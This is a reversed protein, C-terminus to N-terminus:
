DEGLYNVQFDEWEEEVMESLARQLNPAIGRARLIKAADDASVAEPFRRLVECAEEFDPDSHTSVSLDRGQAQMEELRRKLVEDDMAKRGLYAKIVRYVM